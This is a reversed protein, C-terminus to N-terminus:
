PQLRFTSKLVVAAPSPFKSATDVHNQWTPPIYHLSVPSVEHASRDRLDGAPHGWVTISSGDAAGFAGPQFQQCSEYPAYCDANSDCRIPTGCGDISAGPVGAHYSAPQCDQIVASNPCEAHVGGPLVVDDDGEFCLSGEDDVDRCFGVFNGDDAQVTREYSTTFDFSSVV